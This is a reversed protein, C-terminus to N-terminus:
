RILNPAGGLRGVEIGVESIRIGQQGVYQRKYKEFTVGHGAAEAM